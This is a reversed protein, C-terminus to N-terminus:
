LQAILLLLNSINKSIYKKQKQLDSNWQLKKQKLFNTDVPLNWRLLIRSGMIINQGGLNPSMKLPIKWTWNGFVSFLFFQNWNGNPWLKFYANRIQAWPFYCVYKRRCKWKKNVFETTKKISNEMNPERSCRIIFSIKLKWKAM